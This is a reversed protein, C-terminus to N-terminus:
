RRPAFPSQNQNKLVEIELKLGAIEARQQRVTRRLCDLEAREHTQGPDSHHRGCAGCKPTNKDIAHGGDATSERKLEDLTLGVPMRGSPSSM